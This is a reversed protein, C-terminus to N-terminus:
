LTNHDTFFGSVVLFLSLTGSTEKMACAIQPGMYGNGEVAERSVGVVAQEECVQGPTEGTRKIYWGETRTVEASLDDHIM